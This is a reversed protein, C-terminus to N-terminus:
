LPAPTMVTRTDVAGLVRELNDFKEKLAEINENENFGNDPDRGRRVTDALAKQCGKFAERANVVKAHLQAPELLPSTGPEFPAALETVAVQLKQAERLEQTKSDVTNMTSRYSALGELTGLLLLALIGVVSALGLLLKHRIRWQSAVGRGGQGAAAALPPCPPM